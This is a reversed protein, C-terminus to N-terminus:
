LGGLIIMMLLKTEDEWWCKDGTKFVWRDEIKWSKAFHLSTFKLPTYSLMGMVLIMDWGPNDDDFDDYPKTGFSNLLINFASFVAVFGETRILLLMTKMLIMMVRMMMIMMMIMLIVM